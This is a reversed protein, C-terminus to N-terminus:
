QVDECKLTQLNFQNSTTISASQSVDHTLFQGLQMFLLNISPHPRDIDQILLRSITRANTLPSGTVSTSRNFINYLGFTPM